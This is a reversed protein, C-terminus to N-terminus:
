RDKLIERAANQGPLGTVGGGPHAGAGCLYLNKVPTRYNGYGFVPRAAWLQDLTMEGHMIDGGVLGLTEELDLPSLIRKAIVAEAFNPAFKSVTDIITQAAAASEQHWDRGNPLKPAFQQCFLSAVHAGNPALTNDITSPILMEVIPNTSWGMRKADTYAEDMYDLSPAIIIGAGHHDAPEKGPLCTFDPLEKLAVNMRFVGSRCRYNEIRAKFDGHLVEPAVLRQFLTKPNIAGAVFAAHHTEGNELKIGTCQNNDIVVRDVIADTVIEVGQEICAQRMAQTIVGMGGIAHGWAGKEGNTEGFVHHLLVYASGPTDPTTYNGVISDFGFAAKIPEAEFWLDLFGRASKTFLDMVDQILEEDASIAPLAHTALELTSRFRAKPTPPTQRALKRLVDAVRELRAYYAPLRDADNKSFKRFEKQTQALSGGVKLYANSSLPLFNALPRKVIQLGHAHLAMDSIVSPHLLGVTYSALSNKFGPHFEETVAAGGVIHRREFVRVKLGARALYFACVLGNHGAGIIIVDNTKANSKM